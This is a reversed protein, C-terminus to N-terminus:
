RAHLDLSVCKFNISVLAWKSNCRKNCSRQEANSNIPKQTPSSSNKIPTVQNSPRKAFIAFAASIPKSNKIKNKLWYVFWTSKERLMGRLQKNQSQPCWDVQRSINTCLANQDLFRFFHLWKLLDVWRINARASLALQHGDAYFDRHISKSAAKKVSFELQYSLM